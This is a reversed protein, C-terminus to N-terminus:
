KNEIVLSLSAASQEAHCTPMRKLVDSQVKAFFRNQKAGQGPEGAPPRYEARSDCRPAETLDIVYDHRGEALCTGAIARLEEANSGSLDGNVKIMTIDATTTKEISM